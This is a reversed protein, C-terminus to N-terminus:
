YRSAFRTDVVRKLLQKAIVLHQVQSTGEYIQFIKADRMLKEVPYETNYGNGGFIQVANAATMNATDAAFCKAISSFYSGSNGACVEAASRYTILRSLELNIAMDALMFSVAQFNAIETGFAKRELSYRAAEDLCRAALGTAMAAVAPRTRDFTKMAIIFGQGHAGVVASAPVRVDEFTIGRTDSARQGMNIEKKGRIIGKTDGDIVFATFAKSAPVKSDPDSRALVFFWNAHGANTIWMKSGNIIYEDGKKVCHTKIGAVDSGAGPETVAYSAVLPEETMRGLFNKKQEESGAIILPTEALGNTLLGTSIGTCGYALCEAIITSTLSDLGIGGYASPIELNVLGNQHAKKIIEFPYKGTKDYEAAKPIIEDQVFKRTADRFQKQEDTM